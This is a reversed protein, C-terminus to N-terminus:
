IHWSSMQSHKGATQHQALPKLYGLKLTMEMVIFLNVPYFSMHSNSDKKLYLFLNMFALFVIWTM